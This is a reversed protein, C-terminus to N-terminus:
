VKGFFLVKNQCYNKACEENYPNNPLYDLVPEIFISQVALVVSNLSYQFISNRLPLIGIRM